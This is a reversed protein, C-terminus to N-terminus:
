PEDSTYRGRYWGTIMARFSAPDAVFVMFVHTVIFVVFLWVAWFHWYRAAQFGGFLATLWSLQVPKWVTLGTLVSLVALLIIATYAQKQLPNHKGQKPHERTIRLYYKAMVVSVGLDRPRFVLKKWEGSFGLYALYTAGVIVLPWMLTFHWMLGGALWGGLRSWEPFQADTFPNPLFKGGRNGFRAYAEYIQLGSAIMGLILIFTAWHTLRVLWHHRKM